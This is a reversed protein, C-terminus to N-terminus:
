QRVGKVTKIRAAPNPSASRLPIGNKNRIQYTTGGANLTRVLFVNGHQYATMVGVVQVREGPVVSPPNSGKMAYIGLHADVTGSPTALMVHAGILMGAAPKTVLSQVTGELTVEKSAEYRPARVAQPTAASTQASAPIALLSFLFLASIVGRAGIKM